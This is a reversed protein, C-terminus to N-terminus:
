RYSLLRSESATATACIDDPPFLVSRRLTIYRLATDNSTDDRVTKAKGIAPDRASFDPPFTAVRLGEISLPHGVRRVLIRYNEIVKLSREAVGLDSVFKKDSM